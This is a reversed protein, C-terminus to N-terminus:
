VAVRAMWGHTDEQTGHQIGLLRERLQTAVPGAVGGNVVIDPADAMKARGIPVIVAATGCAFAETITGTRCGERWEDLDIEREEVTYGLDEALTFLSERTIGKLLTGTAKPTVLKTNQGDKLVFYVNMGGMEEITRRDFADLWVVQECGNEFAEAQAAFSGAYNGATKAEGTGGRAARIYNRSIWVSVPAVGKAFYESVPGAIVAFTYTKSPKTVLQTDRAFMIPRLYLAAGPARPVWEREIKVLAHLSQLFMEEPVPPMAMRRASAAFRRANQEPRFLAVGGNPSAYAKLGEFISQGYHLVASAPHMVFPAFPVVSFGHWGEEASYSAVVMHDTFRSGFSPKSDILDQREQPSLARTSREVPFEIAVDTTIM